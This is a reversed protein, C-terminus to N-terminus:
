GKVSGALIGRIFYRQMSFFVLLPLLMSIFAAATLFEWGGGYSNVLNSITVTMPAVQPTGGLYILAVLLDNWVWMFQFISLSAIAPLSIPLVLRYFIQVHDAGDLFASEFLEGPIGGVFNRLLYIAFPLGYAAHAVWIGPFTGTLNLRNFLRLIPILTMQLPVVLLGIIVLFLVDRGPFRMWSFAYAAFAAVLIPMVTAPIAILLSNFFSRGMNAQGVVHVYNELTFRLPTDFAEWWGTNLILARPRLSSVFLGLTPVMWIVCVLLIILHLPSRRV